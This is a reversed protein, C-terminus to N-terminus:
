QEEKSKGYHTKIFFVAYVAVAAVVAGIIVASIVSARSVTIDKLSNVPGVVKLLPTDEPNELGAIDKLVGPMVEQIATIVKLAVDASGATVTVNFLVTGSEGKDASIMRRVALVCTDEDEYGLEEALNGVEVARRVVMDQNAMGVCSSALSIAANTQAQSIYGQDSPTNNVYFLTTGQYSPAMFFAAYVGALAGIVVAAILMFLASKKLIEFLYSFTIEREQAPAAETVASSKEMESM